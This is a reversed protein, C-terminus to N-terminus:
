TKFDAKAADGGLRWGMSKNVRGGYGSPLHVCGREKPSDVEDFFSIKGLGLKCISSGESVM